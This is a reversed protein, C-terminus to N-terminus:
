PISCCVGCGCCGSIVNCCKLSAGSGDKCKAGCCNSRSGSLLSRGRDDQSGAHGVCAARAGSEGKSKMQTAHSVVTVTAAEPGSSSLARESAHRQRNGGLLLVDDLLRVGQEAQGRWLVFHAGVADSGASEVNELIDVVLTYDRGEGTGISLQAPSGSAMEFVPAMVEKGQVSVQLSLTHVNVAGAAVEDVAAVSSSGISVVVFLAFTAFQKFMGTQKGFVSSAAIYRGRSLGLRFGIM